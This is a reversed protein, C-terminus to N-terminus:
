LCNGAIKVPQPNKTELLQPQTASPQAMADLANVADRNGTPIMHGYVDVTISISSHGMQEKVYQPSEGNSLMM